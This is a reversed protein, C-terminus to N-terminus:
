SFMTNGNIKYDISLEKIIEIDMTIENNILTDSEIKKGPKTVYLSFNM